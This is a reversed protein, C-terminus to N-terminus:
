PPCFSSVRCRSRGPHRATCCFCFFFKGDYIADLNTNMYLLQRAITSLFQKVSPDNSLKARYNFIRLRACLDDMKDLFIYKGDLDFGAFKPLLKNMSEYEGMISASEQQVVESEYFRDEGEPAASCRLRSAGARPPPPRVAEV